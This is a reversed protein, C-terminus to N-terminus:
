IVNDVIDIDENYMKLSEEVIDNFTPVGERLNSFNSEVIKTDRNRSLSCCTVDRSMRVSEIQLQKLVFYNHTTLFIQVGLESLKMIAKVVERLAYPHLNNEPEDLFLITGKRLTGNNILTSLVGMHKVGEATLHMRFDNNGKRFVFRENTNIQKLEGGFITKINNAVDEFGESETAVPIDLLDILDLTTDDYGPFHFHKALAKIAAFATVVENAPVYIANMPSSQPAFIPTCDKIVTRTDTGFAFDLNTIMGNDMEAHVSLRHPAGNKRVLEGLGIGNRGYVGQLKAALIADYSRVLASNQSMFAYSESSKCIAYLMKMLITKCMDNKGLIVNVGTFDSQPAFDALAALDQIRVKKIM